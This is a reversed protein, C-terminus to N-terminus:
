TWVSVGANPWREQRHLPVPLMLPSNSAARESFEMPGTGVANGSGNADSQRNSQRHGVLARMPSSRGASTRPYPNTGMEDVLNYKTVAGALVHARVQVMM